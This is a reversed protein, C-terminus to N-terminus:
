VFEERIRARIRDRLAEAEAQAIGPLSVAAGQTGATHLVLTSLGFPRQIPGQAVDIHQVRGFPVITRVRFVMGRRIQLEEAGERYGWRLYRRRPLIFTAALGLAIAVGPLLFPPLGAERLAMDLILTMVILVTAAIGIRITLVAMQRPHLPTWAASEGAEQETEEDAVGRRGM